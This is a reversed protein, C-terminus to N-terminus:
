QRAFMLVRGADPAGSGTAAELQNNSTLGSYVAGLAATLFVECFESM